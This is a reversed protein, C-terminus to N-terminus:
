FCGAVDSIQVKKQAANDECEGLNPNDVQVSEKQRVEVPATRHPGVQLFTRQLLIKNPCQVKATAKRFDITM